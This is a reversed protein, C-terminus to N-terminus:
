PLHPELVLNPFHVCAEEGLGSAIEWQCSSALFFPNEGFVRVSSVLVSSAPGVDASYPWYLVFQYNQVKLTVSNQQANKKQRVSSKSRCSM